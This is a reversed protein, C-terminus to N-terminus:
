KGFIPNLQKSIYNEKDSTRKSGLNIVIYPDAKGNLDAPHLDSGKVIYIRVLVNIPENSPTFRSEFVAASFPHRYLKLSGKFIGCLRSLDDSDNGCRKGRYLEYSQLYEKFGEFPPCLELEHPYIKILMKQQTLISKNNLRKPSLSKNSSKRIKNSNSSSNTANTTIKIEHSTKKNTFVDLISKMDAINEQIMAEMSAFYRSWWDSNDEEDEGNDNSEVFQKKKSSSKSHSKSDKQSSDLSKLFILVNIISIYFLIKFIKEIFYFFIQGM